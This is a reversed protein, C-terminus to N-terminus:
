EMKNSVCCFKSALLEIRLFKELMVKYQEVNVPVTRGKANEFFYPGIIGHTCVECWM